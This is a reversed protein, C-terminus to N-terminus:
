DSPTAPWRARDLTQEAHDDDSGLQESVNAIADAADRRWQILLSRDREFGM